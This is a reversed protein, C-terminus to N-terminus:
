EWKRAFVWSLVGIMLGTFLGVTLSYLAMQQVTYIVEGITM